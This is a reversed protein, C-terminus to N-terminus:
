SGYADAIVYLILGGAAGVILGGFFALGYYEFFTILGALALGAMGGGQSRVPRGTLAAGFAVIICPIMWHVQKGYVAAPIVVVAVAATVTASLILTSMYLDVFEIYDEAGPTLTRHQLAAIFGDLLSQTFAVAVLSISVIAGVNKKAQNFRSDPQQDV